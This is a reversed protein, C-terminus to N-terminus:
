STIMQRINKIEKEAAGNKNRRCIELATDLHKLATEQDSSINYIKALELHLQVSLRTNGTMHLGQQFLTTARQYAGKELSSFALQVVQDLSEPPSSAEIASVGEAVPDTTTKSLKLQEGNKPQTSQVTQAARQNRRRGIILALLCLVFAASAIGLYIYLLEEM